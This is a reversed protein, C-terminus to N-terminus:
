SVPAPQSLNNEPSAQLVAFLHRMEADVESPSGVTAAVEARVASRFMERLRLLEARLAGDSLGLRVAADQQTLAESSGPLFARLVAFRDQKGRRKWEEAVADLARTMLHLAWERDLSLSSDAEQPDALGSEFLSADLSLPAIGGGRKQAGNHGADDALFRTLAGGLYSRFRGRSGDARRLASSEMLQLFFDQVLDEVRSEALGRRRLLAIVPQRYNAVFAGLADGAATDGHLTAKALLTWQTSPFEM